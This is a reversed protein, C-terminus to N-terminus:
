SLVPPSRFHHAQIAAPFTRRPPQEPWRAAAKPEVREDSRPETKLAHVLGQPASESMRSAKSMHWTVSAQSYYPRRTATSLTVVGVVIVVVGAAFVLRCLPHARKIAERLMELRSRFM